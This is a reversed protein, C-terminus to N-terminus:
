APSSSLMELTIKKVENRSHRIHADLISLCFAADQALLAKLIQQHEAYTAEIRYDKSFDLRRIIRIKESIESHIKTMEANGAAFVLHCHFAEDKVSLQRLDYVYQEPKICWTQILIELAAKLQDKPMLCLQEVVYCELLIRLDYLEEYAKFNLPRVQWGSRFQVEVYGEQQLRYLAQRIPTRSVAYSEAIESETFREGPMLKFDFIDNKIKQFVLESLNDSSKGTAKTSPNRVITM